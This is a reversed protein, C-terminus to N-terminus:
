MSLEKLSQFLAAYAETNESGDLAFFFPRFLHINEGSTSIKIDITGTLLICYGGLKLKYTGDSM